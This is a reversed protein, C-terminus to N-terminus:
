EAILWAGIRPDYRLVRTRGTSGLVRVAWQTGERDRIYITGATATGTPTFTLLNTRGLQVPDTGPSNPTLGIDVGPFQDFLSTVPEIPLDVGAQIDVTRIGNGNGDVFVSFAVGGAVQDFRLGVAAGRAVAQSRALGLRAALYRAAAHGRSHDVTSLVQSVAVCALTASVSVVAM